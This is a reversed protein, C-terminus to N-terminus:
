NISLDEKIDSVRIVKALNEGKDSSEGWIGSFYTELIEGLKKNAM